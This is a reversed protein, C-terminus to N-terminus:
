YLEQELQETISVGWRELEPYIDEMMFQQLADADMTGINVMKETESPLNVKKIIKSEENVNIIANSSSDIKLSLKHKANMSDKKYSSNGNWLLEVPQYEDKLVFKREFTRDDGSVKEEGNYVIGVKNDNLFLIEDKYTGDKETTLDGTFHLQDNDISITYDWSQASDELSQTGVIELVGIDALKINIERKVILDANHWITSNIGDPLDLKDVSSILDDMVKNFEFPTNPSSVATFQDFSRELYEEVITKFKTDKKAKQLVDTLIKKVEAETLSMSVKETKLSKGNVEITEDLTTFSEEPLSEYLYMIYEKKLYDRNEETLISDKGLFNELGLKDSGAYNPDIARMLNGYDKDQLQLLQDYFPLEFIIEETTIYGKVPNVDVGLITANIEAEVEQKNPDTALRLALNSNNLVRELQPDIDGTYEGSFEYTSDITSKTRKNAWDSENAYRTEVLEQIHQITKVESYFYQEKPTKKVLFFASVGGAVVFISIFAIIWTRKKM